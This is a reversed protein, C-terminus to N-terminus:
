SKVLKLQTKFTRRLEEITLPPKRKHIVRHCTPCLSVVDDLTTERLKAGEVRQQSGFAYLHHCEIARKGWTRYLLGPCLGCGQCTWTDRQKAEEALRKNRSFYRSERISESGEIVAKLVRSSRKVDDEGGIGTSQLDSVLKFVLQSCETLYFGNNPEIRGAKPKICFTHYKGTWYPIEAAIEDAFADSFENSYIPSLFATFDRLPVVLFPGRGRYVGPDPPEESTEEVAGNAKSYGIFRRGSAQAEYPGKVFHLILDDAKVRRMLRYRRQRGKTETPSWLREGM